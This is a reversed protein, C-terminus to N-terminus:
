HTDLLLYIKAHKYKGRGYSVGKSLHGITTETYSVSIM